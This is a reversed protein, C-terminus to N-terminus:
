MEGNRWRAENVEHVEQAENMLLIKLWFKGVHDALTIQCHLKGVFDTKGKNKM